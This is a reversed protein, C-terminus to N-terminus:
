SLPVCAKCFLERLPIFYLIVSYNFAFIFARIWWPVTYNCFVRLLGFLCAYTLHLQTGNSFTMRDPALMHNYRKVKSLNCHQEEVTDLVCTDDLAKWHILMAVITLLNLLQVYYNSTLVYPALYYVYVVYFLHISQVRRCPTM